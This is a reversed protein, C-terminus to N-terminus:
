KNIYQATQLFAGKGAATPMASHFLTSVRSASSKLHSNKPRGASGIISTAKTAAIFFAAIIAAKILINLLNNRRPLSLKLTVM